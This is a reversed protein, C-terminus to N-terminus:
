LYFLQHVYNPFYRGLQCLAPCSIKGHGPHRGSIWVHLTHAVTPHVLTQTQDMLGKFIHWVFMNPMKDFFKRCVELCLFYHYLSGHQPINGQFFFFIPSSLTSFSPNLYVCRSLQTVAFMPLGSYGELPLNQLKELEM